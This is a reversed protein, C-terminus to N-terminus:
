AFRSILERARAPAGNWWIDGDFNPGADGAVICHSPRDALSRLALLTQHAPMNELTTEASDLLEFECLPRWEQAAKIILAMDADNVGIPNELVAQAVAELKSWMLFGVYDVSRGRSRPSLTDLRHPNATANTMDVFEFRLRALDATISGREVKSLEALATVNPDNKLASVEFGDSEDLDLLYIFTDRWVHSISEIVKERRRTIEQNRQSKAQEAPGLMSQGVARRLQALMEYDEEKFYRRAEFATNNDEKQQRTAQEATELRTILKNYLATRRPHGTVDDEIVFADAIHSRIFILTNSARIDETALTRTRLLRDMDQVAFQAPVTSYVRACAECIHRIVQLVRLREENDHVRGCVSSAIATREIAESLFLHPERQHAQVRLEYGDPVKGLEFTKAGLARHLITHLEESQPELFAATLRDLYDIDLEVQLEYTAIMMDSPSTTM